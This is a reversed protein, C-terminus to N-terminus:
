APGMGPTTLGLSAQFMLLSTAHFGDRDHRPAPLRSHAAPNSHKAVRPQGPRRRSGAVASM